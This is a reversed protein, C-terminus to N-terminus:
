RRDVRTRSPRAVASKAICRATTRPLRVLITTSLGRSLLKARPPESPNSSNLHRLANRRLGNCHRPHAPQSAPIRTRKRHAYRMAACLFRGRLWRAFDCISRTPQTNPVIEAVPQQGSGSWAITAIARSDAMLRVEPGRFTASRQGFNTYTKRVSAARPWTRYKYVFIPCEQVITSWM